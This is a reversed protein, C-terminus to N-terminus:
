DSMFFLKSVRLELKHASIIPPYLFKLPIFSSHFSFSSLSFPHTFKPAERGRMDAETGAAGEEIGEKTWGRISSYDKREVLGFQVFLGM